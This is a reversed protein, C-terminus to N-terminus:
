ARAVLFEPIDEIKHAYCFTRLEDLLPLQFLCQALLSEITLM